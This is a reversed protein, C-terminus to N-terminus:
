GKLLAHMPVKKLQLDNECSCCSIKCCHEDHPLLIGYYEHSHVLFTSTYSHSWWSSWTFTDSLFHQSCTVGWRAKMFDEIEKCTRKGDNLHQIITDYGATSTIDTNQVCLQLIFLFYVFCMWTVKCFDSQVRLGHIWVSGCLKVLEESYDESVHHNPSNVIM